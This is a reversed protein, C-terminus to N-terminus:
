IYGPADLNLIINVSHFCYSGDYGSHPNNGRKSAIEILVPLRDVRRLVWEVRRERCAGKGVVELRKDIGEVHWTVFDYEEPVIAAVREATLRISFKGNRPDWRFLDTNRERNEHRDVVGVVQGAKNSKFACSHRYKRAPPHIDILRGEERRYIVAHDAGGAQGQGPLRSCGLLSGDDQFVVSTVQTGLNGIDYVGTDTVLFPQEYGGPPSVFIMIEGADNIETAFSSLGRQNFRPDIDRLNRWGDTDTYVVPSAIDGRLSWGAVHGEKNIDQLTFNRRIEKTLGKDLFEVGTRKHYRFPEGRDASPTIKRADLSTRCGIRM